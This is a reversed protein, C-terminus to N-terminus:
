RHGEAAGGYFNDGTSIVTYIRLSRIVFYTKRCVASWGNRGWSKPPLKPLVTLAKQMRKSDSGPADICSCLAQWMGHYHSYRHWATMPEAEAELKLQVQFEYVLESTTALGTAPDREAAIQRFEPVSIQPSTLPDAGGNAAFEGATASAGTRNEALAVGDMTCEYSYEVTTMGWSTKKDSTIGVTCKKGRCTFDIVHKAPLSEKSHESRHVEHQDIRLSYVVPYTVRHMLWILQVCRRDDANPGPIAWIRTRVDSFTDLDFMSTALHAVGGTTSVLDVLGSVSDAISAM